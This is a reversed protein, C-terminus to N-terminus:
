GLRLEEAGVGRQLRLLAVALIGLALTWALLSAWPVLISVTQSSTASGAKAIAVLLPKSGTYYSYVLNVLANVPLAVALIGFDVYIQTLALGLAMMLPIYAGFMAMRPKRLVLMVYIVTAVLTYFFLGGAIISAFVGLPNVPYVPVGLRWSYVPLVFGLLIAAVFVCAVLFGLVQCLYLKSATLRTYKVVYRAALSAYFFEYGLGVAVSGVSIAVLTSYWGATYGRAIEAFVDAPLEKAVKLVAEAQVAGIAAWFIIFLVSWFWLYPNLVHSRLHYKLYVGSM